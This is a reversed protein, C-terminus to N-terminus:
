IEVSDRERDLHFVDGFKFLLIRLDTNIDDRQVRFIFAEADFVEAGFTLAIVM